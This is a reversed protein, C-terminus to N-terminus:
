KTSFTDNVDQEFKEELVKQEAQRCRQGPDTIGQLRESPKLKGVQARQVSTVVAIKPSSEICDFVRSGRFPCSKYRQSSM